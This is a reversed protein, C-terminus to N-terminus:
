HFGSEDLEKFKNFAKKAEMYATVVRRDEFYDCTNSRGVKAGRKQCDLDGDSWEAKNVYACNKCLRPAQNAFPLNLKIAEPDPKQGQRAAALEVEAIRLEEKAILYIDGELTDKSVDTRLKAEEEYKKYRLNSRVRESLFLIAALIVVIMAVVMLPTYDESTTGKLVTQLIYILVLLIGATWFIRSTGEFTSRQGRKAIEQRKMNAKHRYDEVVKGWVRVKREREVMSIQESM